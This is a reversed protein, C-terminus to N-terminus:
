LSLRSTKCTRPLIINIIVNDQVREAWIGCGHQNTINGHDRVIQRCILFPIHDISPTFLHKLEDDTLSVDQLKVKCLVYRNDRPEYTIDTIHNKFEKRLLEFLYRLQAENGTIEHDIAKVKLPYENAQKNAHESLIGYIERYYLVTEKLLSFNEKDNLLQRIRGPYYMTEHKLSSLCNDLVANTVYLNNEEYRIRNLVEEMMKLQDQLAKKRLASHNLRVIIQWVIAIIIAIM